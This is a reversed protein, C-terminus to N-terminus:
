QLLLLSSGCMVNLSGTVPARASSSTALHGVFTKSMSSTTTLLLLLLLLLLPLLLLLLLLLVTLVATTARGLSHVM